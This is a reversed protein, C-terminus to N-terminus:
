RVCPFPQGLALSLPRHKPSSLYCILLFSPWQPQSGLSCTGPQAQFNRTESQYFKSGQTKRM